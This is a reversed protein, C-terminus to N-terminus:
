NPYSEIVDLFPNKFLDGKGDDKSSQMQLIDALFFMGLAVKLWQFSAM